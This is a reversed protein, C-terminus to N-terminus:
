DHPSAGPKPLAVQENVAEVTASKAAFEELAGLVQAPSSLATPYRSLFSMEQPTLNRVVLTGGVKILFLSGVQICASEQNELGTMLHAVAEAQKVDVDAQQQDLLRVQVAREIRAVVDDAQESSLLRRFRGSRFGLWSGHIPPMSETIDVDLADLLEVLALEVESANAESALYITIPLRHTGAAKRKRHVPQFIRREGTQALRYSDALEASVADRESTAMVRGHAEPRSSTRVSESTMDGPSVPKTTPYFEVRQGEELPGFETALIESYRVFVDGSGSDPTILGFGKANDFWKVTGSVPRVAETGSEVASRDEGPENV